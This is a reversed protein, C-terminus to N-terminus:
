QALTPGHNSYLAPAIASNYVSDAIAITLGDSELTSAADAYSMNKINPVVANDGHHTWINLFIFAGELLIFGTLIIFILHSIIPHKDYFNRFFGKQTPKDAM